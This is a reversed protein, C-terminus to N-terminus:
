DLVGQLIPADGTRAISTDDGLPHEVDIEVCIAHRAMQVVRGIEVVPRQGGILGPNFRDEFPGLTRPNAAIQLLRRLRVRDGVDDGFMKRLDAVGPKVSM